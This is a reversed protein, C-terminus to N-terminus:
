RRSGLALQVVADVLWREFRDRSWGCDRVFVDYLESGTLAYMVDVVEKSQHDTGTRCM